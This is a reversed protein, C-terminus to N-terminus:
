FYSHKSKFNKLSVFSTFSAHADEKNEGIVQENEIYHWIDKQQGYGASFFILFLLISTTKKM